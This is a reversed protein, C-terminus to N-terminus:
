LMEGIRKGTTVKMRKVQLLRFVYILLCFHLCYNLGGKGSEAYEKREEGNLCFCIRKAPVNAGKFDYDVFLCGILQSVAAAVGSQLNERAIGREDRM